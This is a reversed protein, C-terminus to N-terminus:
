KRRRRPVSKRVALQKMLERYVLALRKAADGKPAHESVGRGGRLAAAFDADERLVAPLVPVKYRKALGRILAPGKRDGLRCRNLLIVCKGLLNSEDLLELTEGLSLEDPLDVQSPIVVLDATDAAHLLTRNAQPPTDVWVLDSEQQRAVEMMRALSATTGHAIAPDCKGYSQERIRWWSGASKQPDLDIVSVTRGAEAALVAAHLALTTKGSGGKQNIVSIIDV